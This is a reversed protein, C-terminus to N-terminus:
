PPGPARATTITALAFRGSGMRRELAAAVLVEVVTDTCPVTAVM